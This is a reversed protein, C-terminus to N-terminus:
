ITKFAEPLGTMWVVKVCYWANSNRVYLLPKVNVKLFSTITLLGYLEHTTLNM